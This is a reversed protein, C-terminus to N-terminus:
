SAMPPEFRRLRQLQPPHLRVGPRLSKLLRIGEAVTGVAGTSLLYAVVVCASRGHGLACHVYVPGSGVAESLWEM